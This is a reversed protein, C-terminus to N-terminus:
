ARDLSILKVLIYKMNTLSLYKVRSPKILVMMINKDTCKSFGVLKLM